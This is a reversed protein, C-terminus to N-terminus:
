GFWALGARMTQSGIRVVMCQRARAVSGPFINGVRAPFIALGPKVEM